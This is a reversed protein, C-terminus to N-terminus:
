ELGGILLQDSQRAIERGDVSLVRVTVDYAGAPLRLFRISSVRPGNEGELPLTSSRFFTASDAVVELARNDSNPQVIAQILVDAPALTVSHAVYIKLRDGAGVPLALFALTLLVCLVKM